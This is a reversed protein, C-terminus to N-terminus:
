GAVFTWCRYRAAMSSRCLLAPHLGEELSRQSLLGYTGLLLVATAVAVTILCGARNKSPSSATLDNVSVEELVAM